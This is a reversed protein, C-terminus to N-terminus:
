RLGHRYLNRLAELNKPTSSKPYKLRLRDIVEDWEFKLRVRENSIIAEGSSVPPSTWASARGLAELACNEFGFIALLAVVQYKTCEHMEDTIRKLSRSIFPWKGHQPISFDYALAAAFWDAFLELTADIPMERCERKIANPVLRRSDEDEANIYLSSDEVPVYYFYHEHHHDNQHCHHYFAAEYKTDKEKGKIKGFYHEAYGWFEAGLLYFGNSEVCSHFLFSM